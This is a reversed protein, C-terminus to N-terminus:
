KRVYYIRPKTGMHPLLTYVEKQELLNRIESKPDDLDGFIRVTNMCTTVCPPQEGKAIYDDCFRCKEVIGKENTQRVDYPCATMCMKCGICKKPDVHVIGDATKYTAKTPCVTQCPANDCHMCQVPFIEQKVKPYQGKERFELRNYFRDPPLQWQMQCAVRCAGCGTCKSADILMAYRPM